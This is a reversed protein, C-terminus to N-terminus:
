FNCVKFLVLVKNQTKRERNEPHLCHTLAFLRHQVVRLLVLEQGGDRRQVETQVVRSQVDAQLTVARRRVVVGHHAVGRRGHLRRGFGVPPDSFPLTLAEAKNGGHTLPRPPFSLIGKEHVRFHSLEVASGQPDRSQQNRPKPPKKEVHQSRTLASPRDWGESDFLQFCGWTNKQDVTFCVANIGVQGWIIVIWLSSNFGLLFLIISRKVIYCLSTSFKCERITMTFLGIHLM